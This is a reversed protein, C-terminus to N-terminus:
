LFLALSVMYKKIEVGLGLLSDNRAAFRRPLALPLVISDRGQSRSLQKANAQLSALMNIYKSYNGKGEKSKKTEKAKNTKWKM